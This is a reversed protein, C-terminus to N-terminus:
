WSDQGLIKGLASKSSKEQKRYRAKDKKKDRGKHEKLGKM